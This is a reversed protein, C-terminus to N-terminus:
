LPLSLSECQKLAVFVSGGGGWGRTGGWAAEVPRPDRMWITESNQAESGPLVQTPVTPCGPFPGLSVM